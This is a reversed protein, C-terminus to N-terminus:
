RPTLLYASFFGDHIGQGVIQGRNNIGNAFELTWGSNPDILNNLDSVRNRDFLVARWSNAGYSSGVITGHDNIGGVITQLAGPLAGLNVLTGNEFVWSEYPENGGGLQELWSYGIVEGRNNVAVAASDNLGPLTGLDTM